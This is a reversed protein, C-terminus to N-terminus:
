DAVRVTPGGEGERDHSVLVIGAVTLLLGGALLSRAAADAPWREGFLLPACAIPLLIQLARYVPAVAAAEGRHLAGLEGTFGLVACAAAGALALALPLIRDTGLLNALEKSFLASVAYAVGASVALVIAGAPRRAARLAYPALIPPVLVLLVAAWQLPAPSAASRAPPALGVAAIGGVIALVGAIEQRSIAEHLERRALVLLLV